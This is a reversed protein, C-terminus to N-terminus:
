LMFILAALNAASIFPFLAVSGVFLKCCWNRLSLVIQEIGDPDMPDGATTERLITQLARDLNPDSQEM